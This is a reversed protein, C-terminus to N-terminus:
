ANIANLNPCLDNEIDFDYVYGGNDAACKQFYEIVKKVQDEPISPGIGPVHYKHDHMMTSFEINDSYGNVKM